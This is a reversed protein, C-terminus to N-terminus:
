YPILSRDGFVIAVACAICFAFALAAGVAIRCWRACGEPTAIRDDTV